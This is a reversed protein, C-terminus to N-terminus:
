IGNGTMPRKNTLHSVKKQTLTKEKKKTISETLFSANKILPIPNSQNVSFCIKATLPRSSPIKLVKSRDENAFCKKFCNQSAKKLLNKKKNEDELIKVSQNFDEMLKKMRILIETM